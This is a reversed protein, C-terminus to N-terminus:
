TREIAALIVDKRKDGQLEHSGPPLNEIKLTCICASKVQLSWHGSTYRNNYKSAEAQCQGACTTSM